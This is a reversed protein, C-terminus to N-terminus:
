TCRMHEAPPITIGPRTPILHLDEWPATKNARPTSICRGRGIGTNSEGTTNTFGADQGLYTNGLLNPLELRPSGGANKRLVMNETGALDFRIINENAAEETQVKTNGDTDAIFTTPTGGSGGGSLNTWATGNFFWFGGLDTDYVLLGTAPAAILERQAKDMRPVLVGKTTSKVDLMASPDAAAGDTNISVAQAGAFAPVLLFFLAILYFQKMQM